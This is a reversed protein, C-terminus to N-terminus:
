ASSSPCITSLKCEGCIPNRAFCVRRGHEILDMHTQYYKDSPILSELIEHAKDASIGEDFLELRKSVRFVHTDVPFAAMHFSFLLVCSATKRGVGPLSLLWKLSDLVPLLRLSEIDLKGNRHFIEKLIAQIRPAKIKSLGGVRIALEVDDENANMVDDWSAFVETLKDYSRYTNIDSTNQSLVTFVLEELSNLRPEWTRVGYDDELLEMMKSSREQRIKTLITM